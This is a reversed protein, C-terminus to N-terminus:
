RQELREGEMLERLRALARVQARRLSEPKSHGLLRALERVDLGLGFSLRLLRRQRPTLERVLRELDRRAGHQEEGSPAAGALWELQDRDVGKMKM